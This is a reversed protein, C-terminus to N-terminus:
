KVLQLRNARALLRAEALLAIMVEVHRIVSYTADGSKRTEELGQEQELLAGVAREPSPAKDTRMLRRLDRSRDYDIAGHRAARILLSPRKLTSVTRVDTHM